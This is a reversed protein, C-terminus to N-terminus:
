EGLFGLRYNMTVVIIDQQVLFDPGFKKTSGSGFQFVGGHIYVYVPLSM